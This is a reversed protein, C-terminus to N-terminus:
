GKKSKDLRVMLEMELEKIEDKLKPIKEKLLMRDDRFKTYIKLWEKGLQKPFKGSNIILSPYMSGIDANKIKGKVM